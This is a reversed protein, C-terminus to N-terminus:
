AIGRGTQADKILKGFVSRCWVSTGPRRTHRQSMDHLTGGYRTPSEFILRHDVRCTETVKYCRLYSISCISRFFNEFPSTDFM